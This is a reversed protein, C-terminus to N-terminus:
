KITISKIIIKELPADNRDTKTEAIQDLVDFGSVVGGFAAYEGDLWPSDKHVIFFQSTASNKVSTRAMSIVGRTHLLNNEVGNSLFEGKIPANTSKVIGGQIMFDKIIRHFSSNSYSNSNIYKIINAVTIPAVSEFLQVKMIGFGEVEIVMLPNKDNLYESYELETLDESEDQDNEKQCSFLALPLTFIAVVLLIKKM